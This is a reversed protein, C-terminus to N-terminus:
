RKEVVDLGARLGVWGRKWHTGPVREGATFRGPRSASWERGDLASTLYHTSGYRSEELTGGHRPARNLFLVLVVKGKGKCDCLQFIVNSADCQM